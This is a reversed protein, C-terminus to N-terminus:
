RSIRPPPDDARRRRRAYLAWGGGAALVVGLTAWGRVTGGDGGGNSPGAATTSTAATAAGTPPSTFGRPPVDATLAAVLDIVGHGYQDDRGPPGKDIATATLRHVVEDAPLYPYKARILAVAGAVIAASNSTGSSRRYKAGTNTSYINVAPAVVDIQPGTVSIKAHNGHRDIGGVGVVGDAAAPFIVTSDEPINGAAAVVVVNAARAAQLARFLHPSGAGGGSVSVVDAGAAIAYEIAIALRDANGENTATSTKLPIIRAKPAIGLAGTEDPQGHAGILGAMATGHGNPDKMGEKADGPLFNAGPLLNLRLDPHADVGTDPLAVVVGEGRSIQHAQALKLFQLHWQDGRVQSTGHPAAAHASGSAPTATCVAVALTLLVLSGLARRM